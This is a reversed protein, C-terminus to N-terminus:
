TGAGRGCKELGQLDAGRCKAIRRARSSARRELIENASVWQEKYRPAGIGAGYDREGVVEEEVVEMRIGMGM